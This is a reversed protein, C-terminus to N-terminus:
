TFWLQKYTHETRHFLSLEHPQHHPDTIVASAPDLLLTIQMQLCIKGMSSLMRREFESFELFGDVYVDARQILKCSEVCALVETLRRHSDLRDQGLYRSYADYLLHLDHFKAALSKTHADDGASSELDRVLDALDIATKGCREFEAFTENLESALTAQKAVSKFFRLTNQHRRLLHGLVMQRGQATVQPVAEGGCDALVDEGLTEFSVVRARCFGDLGSACTLEREAM